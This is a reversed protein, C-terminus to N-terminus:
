SIMVWSAACSCEQVFGFYSVNTLNSKITCFHFRRWVIWVMNERCNHLCVGCAKSYKFCGIDHLALWHSHKDKFAPSLASVHILPSFFSLLLKIRGSLCGLWKMAGDGHTGPLVETFNQGTTYVCVMCELKYVLPSFKMWSGVCWPVTKLIVALKGVLTRASRLYHPPLSKCEYLFNFVTYVNGDVQIMNILHEM